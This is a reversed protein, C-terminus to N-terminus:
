IQAATVCPFQESLAGPDDNSPILGDDGPSTQLLRYYQSFELDHDSPEHLPACLNSFAVVGGDRVTVEGVVEGSANAFSMTLVPGEADQTADVAFDVSEALLAKLDQNDDAPDPVFTLNPAATGLGKEKLDVLRADGGDVFRSLTTIPTFGVGRGGTIEIVASTRGRSDPELASDVLRPATTAKRAAELEDLGIIRGVGGLTAPSPTASYRVRLGSLDWILVQPTKADGGSAIRLMPHLTTIQKRSAGHDDDFFKLQDFPISMLARHPAFPAEFHPALASFGGDRRAFVFRGHFRITVAV